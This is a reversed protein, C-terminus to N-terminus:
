AFPGQQVAAGVGVALAAATIALRWRTRRDRTLALATWTVIAAVLYALHWTPDVESSAPIVWPVVWIVGTFLHVVIIAPGGLLSPVWRGVATAISGVALIALPVQVALFADIEDPDIDPDATHHLAWWSLATYVVAIAGPGLALGALLGATRTEPPSPMSGFLERLHDRRARVSAVNAALITGAFLGILLGVVLFVVSDAEWSAGGGALGRALLMGAIFPIWFAPHAVLRKAEIRAIACVGAFSPTAGGVPVQSAKADAITTRLSAAM